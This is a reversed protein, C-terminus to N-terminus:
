LTDGHTWLRFEVCFPNTPLEETITVISCIQDRPLKSHRQYTFSMEHMTVAIRRNSQGSPRKGAGLTSLSSSTSWTFCAGSGPTSPLATAVPTGHGAPLVALGSVQKMVCRYTVQFCGIAAVSPRFTGSNSANFSLRQQGKHDTKGCCYLMDYM